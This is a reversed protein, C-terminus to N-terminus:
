NWPHLWWGCHNQLRLFYFRGSNGSKGWRNALFHHSWICHDKNISHQTKLLKKVRKKWRWWSDRWNRKMKQWLPPTMQVDWTISIKGLWRSELKHKMWGPMEWSTSQMCTEWFSTLHNPIVLEKFIKWLKNHDVYYFAKAYDIFCFYNNRQFERAKEIICCINAM